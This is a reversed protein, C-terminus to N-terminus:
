VAFEKEVKKYEEIAKDNGIKNSIVLWNAAIDRQFLSDCKACRFPTNIYGPKKTLGSASDSKGLSNLLGSNLMLEYSNKQEKFAIEDKPHLAMNGCNPCRTRFGQWFFYVVTVLVIAAISFIIEM